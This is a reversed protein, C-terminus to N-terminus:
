QDSSVSTINGTSDDVSITLHNVPRGRFAASGELTVVWTAQTAEALGPGSGGVPAYYMGTIRHPAPRPFYERENDIFQSVAREVAAPPTHPSARPPVEVEYRAPLLSCSVLVLVFALASPFRRGDIMRTRERGVTWGTPLAAHLDGV